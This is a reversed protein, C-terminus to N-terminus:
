WDSSLALIINDERLIEIAQKALEETKFYVIDGTTVNSYSINISERYPTYNIYYKYSSSDKWNPKWGANLYKAVNMLKNIALLKEAHKKSTCNRLNCWNPTCKYAEIGYDGIRWTDENRFLEKTVDDYNIVKKPISRFKIENGEQYAEMGEPPIIILNNTEM